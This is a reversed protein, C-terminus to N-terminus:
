CGTSLYIQQYVPQLFPVLIFGIRFYLLVLKIPLRKLIHEIDLLLIFHYRATSHLFCSTSLFWFLMSFCELIM